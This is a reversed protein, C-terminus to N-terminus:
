WLYCARMSITINIVVTISAMTFPIVRITGTPIMRLVVVDVMRFLCIELNFTYLLQLQISSPNTVQINYGRRAFVGTVRNLVGPADNVLM